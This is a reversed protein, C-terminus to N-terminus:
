FAITSSGNVFKRLRESVRAAVTTPASEGIKSHIIHLIADEVVSFSANVIDAGEENLVRISERFMFQCDLRTILVVHLASGLERIEIQPSKLGGDTLGGVSGANNNKIIKAVRMLSDKKERMKELNIQLKKIYNVAKDLEDPLSAVERSSQHPLLSKLKSFLAKMQERRNKEITKRDTKSTRYQRNMM